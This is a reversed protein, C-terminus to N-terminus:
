APCLAPASTAVRGVEVIQLSGNLVHQLPHPDGLRAELRADMGGQMRGARRCEEDAPLRSSIEALHVRAHPRVELYRLLREHGLQVPFDQELM